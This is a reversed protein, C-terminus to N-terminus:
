RKERKANGSDPKPASMADLQNQSCEPCISHTFEAQTRSGVYDELSRWTETDDRIKRCWACIPLLGQLTQVDSQLGLIREAVRLRVKLQDTDFPKTLYDDVGAEMGELFNAKGTRATLMIFYCYDKVKRTRIRRCLELGDVDPMQWDSIVLRFEGAEYLAWATGGSQTSVVEHGWGQLTRELLRRTVPSDEAALIKM